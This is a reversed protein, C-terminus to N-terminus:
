LKRNTAAIQLSSVELKRDIFSSNSTNSLGAVGGCNANNPTGQVTGYFQNATRDAVLFQDDESEEDEITDDSDPSSFFYNRILNEYLM